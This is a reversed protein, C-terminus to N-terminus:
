RRQRPHRVGHKVIDQVMRERQAEAEERNAKMLQEIKNGIYQVGAKAATKGASGALGAITAKGIFDTPVDSSFTHDKLASNVAFAVAGNALIGAANALTNTM